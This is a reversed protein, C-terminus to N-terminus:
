SGEAPKAEGQVAPDKEAQAPEPEPGEDVKVEVERQAMMEFEKIPQKMIKVQVGVMGPKLMAQAYGKDVLRESYDGSQAIFGASFKAFRSREAGMLKGAVRIM